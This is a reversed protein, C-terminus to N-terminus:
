LRAKLEAVLAKAKAVLEHPIAALEAEIESFLSEKTSAVPAADPEVSSPATDDTM